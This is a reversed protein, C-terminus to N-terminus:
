VQLAAEEELHLIVRRFVVLGPRIHSDTSRWASTQSRRRSAVQCANQLKSCIPRPHLPAHKGLFPRFRIPHEARTQWPTTPGKTASQSDWRGGMGGWVGCGLGPPDRWAEVGQVPGRYVRLWFGHHQRQVQAM